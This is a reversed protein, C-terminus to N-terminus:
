HPFASYALGCPWVAMQLSKEGPLSVYAYDAFQHDAILSLSAEPANGGIIRAAASYPVMEQFKTEFEGCVAKNSQM